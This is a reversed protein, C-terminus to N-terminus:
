LECLLVKVCTLLWAIAVLSRLSRGDLEGLWAEALLGRWTVLVGRSRNTQRM